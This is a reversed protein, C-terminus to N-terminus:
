GPPASDPALRMPRALLLYGAGAAAVVVLWFSPRRRRRLRRPVAQANWIGSLVVLSGLAGFPTDARAAFLNAGAPDARM